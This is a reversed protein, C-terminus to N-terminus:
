TSLNRFHKCDLYEIFIDINPQAAYFTEKIGQLEDDSWSYGYHYSTILLVRPPVTSEEAHAYPAASLVHVLIATIISTGLISKYTMRLLEM